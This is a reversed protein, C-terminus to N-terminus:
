KALRLFQIPNTAPASWSYTGNSSAPGVLNTQWTRLDSSSLVQFQQGPSGQWQLTLTQNQVIVSQIVFPPPQAAHVAVLQGQLTIRTDGPSLLELVFTANVPITLTQQNGSATLAALTTVKNTAYGTLAKSGHQSLFGGSVNYAFSSTSNSPFFFTLASSNFLGNTLGIAPSIVDLQVNRLAALGTGLATNALGGFNAPQSGATGDANPQWSGSDNAQILSQGVFQIASGSVVAVLNGGINATLSGPGQTMIASGLVTGSITVSSQNSDILFTQADTRALGAILVLLPVVARLAEIRSHAAEM